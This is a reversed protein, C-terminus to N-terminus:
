CWKSTTRKECFHRTLGTKRFMFNIVNTKQISLFLFSVGATM